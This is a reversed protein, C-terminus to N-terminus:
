ENLNKFLKALDIIQADQIFARDIVKGCKTYVNDADSMLECYIEFSTSEEYYSQLNGHFATLLERIEETLYEEIHTIEEGEWGGVDALDCTYDIEVRCTNEHNYHNSAGCRVVRISSIDIVGSRHKERVIHLDIPLRGDYCKSSDLLKDLVTDVDLDTVCCAGSGPSYSVDYFLELSATDAGFRRVLDERFGDEVPELDVMHSIDTYDAEYLEKKVKETLEDFNYGVIETKYVKPM